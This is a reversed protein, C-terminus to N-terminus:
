QTRQLLSRMMPFNDWTNLDICSLLSRTLAAENMRPFGKHQSIFWALMRVLDHGNIGLRVDKIKKNRWKQLMSIMASRRGGKRNKNLYRTLYDDVDLNVGSDTLECSKEWNVGELGWKLQFNALRILFLQQLPNTIEEIVAAATKPFQKGLNLSLFKHFVKAEFTYLEISCYDTELLLACTHDVGLIADFDRDAVLTVRIQPQQEQLIYALTLVRGRNSNEFHRIQVQQASVEFNSIEYVSTNSQGHESVFWDFLLKDTLGEVIIDNVDPEQRHLSVLEEVTRKPLESAKKM